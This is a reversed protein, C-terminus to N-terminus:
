RRRCLKSEILQVAGSDTISRFMVILMCSICMALQVETADMVDLACWEFGAPM